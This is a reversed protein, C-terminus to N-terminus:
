RIEIHFHSEVVYMTQTTSIHKTLGNNSYSLNLYNRIKLPPSQYGCHHFYFNYQTLNLQKFCFNCPIKLSEFYKHLYEQRCFAVLLFAPHLLNCTLSWAPITPVITIIFIEYKQTLLSVRTKLANWNKIEYKLRLICVILIIFPM